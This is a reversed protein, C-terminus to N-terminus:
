IGLFREVLRYRWTLGLLVTWAVVAGAVIALEPLGLEQLAFIARGAPIVLLVIYAVALGVALLAPRRDTTRPEIVAFLRTPPEVFVVLMIGAFVLFSTVNSQGVKIAVALADAGVTGGTVETLGAELFLTGYLVALGVLSSLAAAPVVFRALTRGLSEHTRQGPQAWIALMATPIGVTFLTLASGNRLDIPFLGIVLSTVILLGVTMIRTLFLRLIDQMGNLIRQGEEVAPALAAFSDETLVIDAVGRAAQSGSQMAIGLNAKKLSLVDNVGDGIM